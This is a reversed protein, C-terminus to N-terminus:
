QAFVHSNCDHAVGRDPCTYLNRRRLLFPMCCAPKGTLHARAYARQFVALTMSEFLFFDFILSNRGEYFGKLREKHWITLIADSFFKGRTAFCHLFLRSIQLTTQQFVDNQRSYLRQVTSPAAGLPVSIGFPMVIL